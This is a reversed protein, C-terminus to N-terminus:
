ILSLRVIERGNATKEIRPNYKRLFLAFDKATKYGHQIALDIIKSNNSYRM